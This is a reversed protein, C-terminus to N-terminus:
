ARFSTVVDIVADQELETLGTFFPLRLVRESVDETVPCDGAKGGLRRGMRSLHLPQYHFVALIGNAGLHEILMRRQDATRMLVYFMHYSQDCHPPVVPLAVDQKAAWVSLSDRYRHWLARRKSQISERAQLQGYLFAALLDAPLYSSGQDLWTYREVEGRTFKSRDTGKSRVIEARELDAPDNIVIAGGEGCTVNKTEHFSLAAFRSLGGLPVGRYRGFLGHANDEVLDINHRRGIDALADMECGVGGYHVPVIARTRKSILREVANEDINLTDPRIDAFVPRAGRLVFATATSVFTFSPVIVEDGAQLDLLLAAMELADTCSTTLLVAPAQLLDALLASCKATFPGDGSAHGNALASGIYTLETGVVYPRNFPIRM